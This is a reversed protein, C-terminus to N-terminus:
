SEINGTPSGSLTPWQCGILVTRPGPTSEDVKRGPLSAVPTFPVTLPFNRCKSEKDIISRLWTAGGLRCLNARQIATLRLVYVSGKLPTTAPNSARVM